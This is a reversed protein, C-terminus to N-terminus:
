CHIQFADARDNAWDGVYSSRANADGNWLHMPSPADRRGEGLRNLETVPVCENILARRRNNVCERGSQNSRESTINWM